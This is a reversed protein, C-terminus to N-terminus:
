IGGMYATLAEIFAKKKPRSMQLTYDGVQVFNDKVGLVKSLNVLYCSNCRFFHNKELKAEMAKLSGMQWFDKKITRVLIKHRLSELYLIDNVELRVLGNESTLLLGHQTRRSLKEISRAIEQSFAFYPVPKLLFSLADVSYGKLAYQAMNTIFILIVEKDRSRIFQATKMGDLRKMEIDLFVIDFEARYHETISDGDDFERVEFTEGSEHSFRNLYKKIIERESADDEVVAIRYSM